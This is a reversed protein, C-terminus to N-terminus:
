GSSVRTLEKEKYLFFQERELSSGYLADLAVIMHSETRQLLEVSAPCPCPKAEEQYEKLYQTLLKRTSLLSQRIEAERKSAERAHM